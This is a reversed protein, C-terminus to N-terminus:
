RFAPTRRQDDNRWTRLCVTMLWAYFFALALRQLAGVYGSAAPWFSTIAVGVAAGLTPAAWSRRSEVRSAHLAFCAPALALLAFGLVACMLHLRNGLITLDPPLGGQWPTLGSAGLSLGAVALLIAAFTSLRGVGYALRVSPASLAVLAGAPVVGFVNMWVAGPKGVEGLESITQRLHSYEPRRAAIIVTTTALLCPSAVGALSLWRSIRGYPRMSM